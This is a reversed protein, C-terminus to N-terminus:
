AYGDTKFGYFAKTVDELVNWVLRQQDFIKMSDGAKITVTQGTATDTIEVVGHLITMLEDGQETCEMKGVTCHWIGTRTTPTQHDIRGSARPTTGDHLVYRSAPNEWPWEQLPGEDEMGARYVFFRPHSKNDDDNSNNACTPNNSM